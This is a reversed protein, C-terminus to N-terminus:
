RRSGSRSTCRALPRPRQVKGGTPPHGLALGDGHVVQASAGEVGSHKSARRGAVELHETRRISELLEAPDVEVLCHELSDTAADLPVTDIRLIGVRQGPEGPQPAIARLRLLCEGALGLRCNRDQEAAPEVPHSQSPGLELLQDTRQDVVCDVDEVPHDPSGPDGGASRAAMTRTPPEDRTGIILSSSVRRKPRGTTKDAWGFSQTAM